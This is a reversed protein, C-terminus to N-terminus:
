KKVFPISRVENNKNTLSVYYIGPTLHSVDMKIDNMATIQSSQLIKGQNDTIRLLCDRCEEDISIFLTNQVPNPFIKMDMKGKEIDETAVFGGTDVVYVCGSTSGNDGNEYDWVWGSVFLKNDTDLMFNLGFFIETEDYFYKKGLVNFNADLKYIAIVEQFEDNEAVFTLFFESDNIKVMYNFNSMDAVRDELVTTSIVNLSQDYSTLILNNSYYENIPDYEWKDYGLIIKNGLSLAMLDYADSYFRDFTAIVQFDDDLEYVEDDTFVWYGGLPDNMPVITEAYLDNIIKSYVVKGKPNLIIIQTYSDNYGDLPLSILINDDELQTMKGNFYRVYKNGDGEIIEESVINLDYDWIVSYINGSILGYGLTFFENSEPIDKVYIWSLNNGGDYVNDKLLQGNSDYINIVSFILEDDDDEPFGEGLVYLGVAVFNGDSLSTSGVFGFITEDVDSYRSYDSIFKFHDTQASMTPMLILGCVVISLLTLLKKMEKKRFILLKILLETLKLANM